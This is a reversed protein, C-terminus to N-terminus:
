NWKAIKKIVKFPVTISMIKVETTYEFQTTTYAQGNYKPIMSWVTMKFPSFIHTLFLETQGKSTISTSTVSSARPRCTFAESRPQARSDTIHSSYIFCHPTLKLTLITESESKLFRNINELVKKNILTHKANSIRQVQINIRNRTWNQYSNVDLPSYIM